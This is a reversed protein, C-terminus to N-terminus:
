GGSQPKRLSWDVQLVAAYQKHFYLTACETPHRFVAAHRHHGFATTAGVTSCDAGVAQDVNAVVATEGPLCNISQQSWNTCGFVIDSAANLCHIQLCTLHVGQIVRAIAVLELSRIVDDKVALTPKIKGVKALSM